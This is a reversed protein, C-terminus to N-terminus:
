EGKAAYAGMVRALQAAPAQVVGVMKAAPAQLLGALKSRLEDLSPMKALQEVGKVDLIKSGMAGGIIVLREHAKAFKHTVRAAAVPDVSSAVGVPGTFMEALGEFKTGEIARQALKNKVVKFRAGESRLQNRYEMMEAVTLGQNHVLVVTEDAEFREKYDVVAQEKLTRSMAMAKIEKIQARVSM